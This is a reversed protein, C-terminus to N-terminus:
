SELSESELDVIEHSLEGIFFVGIPEEVPKEALDIIDSIGDVFVHEPFTRPSSASCHSVGAYASSYWDRFMLGRETRKRGRTYM